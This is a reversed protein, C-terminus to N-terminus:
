KQPLVEPLAIVEKPQQSDLVTAETEMSTAPLSKQVKIHKALQKSLKKSAKIILKKCKKSELNFSEAIGLTESIITNTIETIIAKRLIKKSTKKSKKM